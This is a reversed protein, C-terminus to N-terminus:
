GESTAAEELEEIDDLEAKYGLAVLKAIEEEAAADLDDADVEKEVQLLLKGKM